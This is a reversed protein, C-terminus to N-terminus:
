PPPQGEAPAVAKLQAALAPIAIRRWPVAPHRDRVDDPVQKAAEGLLELNRLVADRVLENAEFQESSLGESYRMVRSCFRQM